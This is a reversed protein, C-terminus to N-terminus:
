ASRVHVRIEWEGGGKRTAAGSEEVRKERVCLYGIENENIAPVGCKEM